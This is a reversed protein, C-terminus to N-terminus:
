FSKEKPEAYFHGEKKLLRDLNVVCQNIQLLTEGYKWYYSSWSQWWSFSWVHNDSMTVFYGNRDIDDITSLVDPSFEELYCGIPHEGHLDRFVLIHGEFTDVYLFDGNEYFKVNNSSRGPVHYPVRTTYIIGGINHYVTHYATKGPDEQFKWTTGNDMTLFYTDRWPKISTLVWVENSFGSTFTLFLLFTFTIARFM